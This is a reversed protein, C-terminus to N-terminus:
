YTRIRYNGIDIKKGDPLHMSKFQYGNGLFIFQKEDYYKLYMKKEIPNILVHIMNPGAGLLMQFFSDAYIMKIPEISHYEKSFDIANVNNTMLDVIQFPIDYTEADYKHFKNFITLLHRGEDSILADSVSHNIDLQRFANGTRDFITLHTQDFCTYIPYRADEDFFRSLATTLIFNCWYGDQFHVRNGFYTIDTARRIVSDPVGTVGAKQLVEKRKAFAIDRLNYKRVGGNEEKIPEGHEELIRPFDLAKFKSYDPLDKDRIEKVVKGDSGYFVFMCNYGGATPAKMGIRGKPISDKEANQTDSKVPSSNEGVQGQTPQAGCGWNIAFLLVGLALLRIFSVTPRTQKNSYTAKKNM